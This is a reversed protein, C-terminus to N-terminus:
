SSAASHIKEIKVPGKFSGYRFEVMLGLDMFGYDMGLHNFKFKTFKQMKVFIRLLLGGVYLWYEDPDNEDEAEKRENEHLM